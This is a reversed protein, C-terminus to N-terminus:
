WRGTVLRARWSNRSAIDSGSSSRSSSASCDPRAYGGVGFPKEFEFSARAACQRIGITPLLPIDDLATQESAHTLPKANIRFRFGLDGVCDAVVLMFPVRKFICLGSGDWLLVALDIKGDGNFDGSTISSPRSGAPYNM